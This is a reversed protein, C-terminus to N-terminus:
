YTSPRILLDECDGGEVSRDLIRGRADALLRVRCFRQAPHAPVWRIREYYVPFGQRDTGVLFREVVDQGPVTTVDDLLWEYERDSDGDAEAPLADASNQRSDGRATRPFGTEGGAVPRSSTPPGFYSEALDLTEIHPMLRAVPGTACGGAALLLSLLSVATLMAKM